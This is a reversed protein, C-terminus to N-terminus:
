YRLETRQSMRLDEQTFFHELFLQTDELTQSKFVGSSLRQGYNLWGHGVKVLFRFRRLAEKENFDEACFHLFRQLAQGYEYAEQTPTEPCLNKGLPDPLGLKKGLQWFLWPRATLARGVMVGDCQTERRMKLVDEAVQVDGNGVIPLKLHNKLLCIQQWDASGRRKEAALRPHLCLWSAGAQELNQCFDLLFSEDRQLGARLKVSVPLDTNKIVMEVVKKAYQSDGMLSVGYNHKLIKQEPCGMNIDVAQAGWDELKQLSPKLFREDNGLLQPCLDNEDADKLTFPNNEFKQSPLRRSNLMETPFLTSVGQPLYSRVLRRFSVHSLGVM